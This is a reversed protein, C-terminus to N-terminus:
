WQWFHTQRPRSRSFAGSGPWELHELEDALPFRFREEPQNVRNGHWGRALDDEAFVRNAYKSFAHQQDRFIYHRLNFNQPLIRIGEGSLRHGGSDRGSFGTSRKWARMLRHPAPEFFYYSLMPQFGQACSDFAVETPLFVFEDFNIVNYGARDVRAIADLLGEGAVPSQLVEDADLHIVWDANLTSILGEKAALQEALNFSGSFPLSTLSMLWPRFEESLVLERTGDSSENDLVVFPIRESILRRLTHPLVMSENRVGLVAIVDAQEIM